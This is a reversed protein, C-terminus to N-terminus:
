NNEKSYSRKTFFEKMKDLFSKEKTKHEEIKEQIDWRINIAKSPMNRLSFIERKRYRPALQANALVLTQNSNYENLDIDAYVVGKPKEFDPLIKNKYITDYVKKTIMTPYTAGTVNNSLANKEENFINGLWIGMTHQTTYSTCYADNNKSSKLYSNTGTKAAVAYESGKLRKATGSNTASKLMDTLIYATDENVIRKPNYNNQYIVQGDKTEIKNIFSSKQYLGKNPLMAYASSLEYLTIGKHLGGLALSLGNDNDDLEFGIKGLFDVATDTGISKLVKVAAINNSTSIADRINIWGYHKGSYNKPSYGNYNIPEDLILTAATILNNELAPAYVALPKITSAPQRKINLIDENSSIMGTIGYTNNDIVIGAYDPMVGNKNIAQPIYQSFSQSLAEQADKNYYTYIICNTLNTKSNKLLNMAELVASRSYINQFKKSKEFSFNLDSELAEKYQIEDIFGSKFMAKLVTKQRNILLERNKYPNYKTPSNIIAALAAAESLNLNKSSKGFYVNSASEIGFLGNGFYVINLYKELIEDKSYNKELQRTIHAEKLKREITRENSLHTNKVLQQSITSAGEKFSLTKIDNVAAGILRIYDFGHHKYFRKDEIAIFAKPVYDPLNTLLAMNGHQGNYELPTMDDALVEITQGIDDITKKNLDVYDISIVIFFASLAGAIAVSALVISIIKFTKKFKM